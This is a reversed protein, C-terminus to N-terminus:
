KYVPTYTPRMAEWRAAGEVDGLRRCAQAADARLLAQWPFEEGFDCFFMAWAKQLQEQAEREGGPTRACVHGRVFRVTAILDFPSTPTNLAMDLAAKSEIQAEDLKGQEALAFAALARCVAITHHRPGAASEFLKAATKAEAEAEPFKRAINLAWARYRHSNAALLNDRATPSVTDWIQCSRATLDLAQQIQGSYLSTVAADQVCVLVAFHNPGFRKGLIDAAQQAAAAREKHRVEATASEVELV